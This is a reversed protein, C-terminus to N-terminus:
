KVIFVIGLVIAVILVILAVLWVTKKKSKKQLTNAEEIHTNAEVVNKNAKLTEESIINLNEGQENVMVGIDIIINNIRMTNQEVQNLLTTKEEAIKHELDYDIELESEKHTQQQHHGVGNMRENETLSDNIGGQGDANVHAKGGEFYKGQDEDEGEGRTRRVNEM